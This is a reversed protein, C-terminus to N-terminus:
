EFKNQATPISFYSATNVLKLLNAAVGGWPHSVCTMVGTGRWGM